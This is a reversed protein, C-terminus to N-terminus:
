DIYRLDDVSCDLAKAIKDVAYFSPTTKGNLYRSLTTFHIGTRKSVDELTLGKYIMLRRLRKGFERRCEQESMSRSDKPLTRLTKNINDFIVTAGDSLKAVLEGRGIDRWSVADEAILPFYLKFNDYNTNSM